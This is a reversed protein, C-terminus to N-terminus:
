LIMNKWVYAEGNKKIARKLEGIRQTMSHRIDKDTRPVKWKRAPAVNKAYEIIEAIAPPYLPDHKEKPTDSGQARWHQGTLTCTKIASLKFVGGILRRAVHAVSASERLTKNLVATKCFTKTLLLTTDKGEGYLQIKLDELSGYDEEELDLDDNTVGSGQSNNSENLSKDKKLDSSNSGDFVGGSSSGKDPTSQPRMSQTESSSLLEDTNDNSSWMSESEKLEKSQDSVKDNSKHEGIDNHSASTSASTGHGKNGLTNLKLKLQESETVAKQREPLTTGEYLMQFKQEFDLLKARLSEKSPSEETDTGIDRDKIEKIGKVLQLRHEKRKRNNEAYEKLTISDLSSSDDDGSEVEDDDNDNDADEDPDYDKDKEKDVSQAVSQLLAKNTYREASKVNMEHLKKKKSSEESLPATRKEGKKPEDRDETGYKIPPNSRRKGSVTINDVDILRESPAAKSTKSATVGLKKLEEECLTKSGAILVVTGKTRKKNWFFFVSDGVSIKGSGANMVYGSHIIAHSNDESCFFLYWPM